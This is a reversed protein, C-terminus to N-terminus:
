GPPVGVGRFVTDVVSRGAMLEYCERGGYEDTVRGAWHEDAQREALAYVEDPLLPDDGPVVVAEAVPVWILGSRHRYHLAVAYVTVAHPTM